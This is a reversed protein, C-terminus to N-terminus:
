KPDINRGRVDKKLVTGRAGARDVCLGTGPRWGNGNEGEDKMAPPPLAPNVPKINRHKRLFSSIKILVKVFYRLSTTLM